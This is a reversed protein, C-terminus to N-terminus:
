APAPPAYRFPVSLECIEYVFPLMEVYPMILEYIEACRGLYLLEMGFCPWFHHENGFFYGGLKSHICKM